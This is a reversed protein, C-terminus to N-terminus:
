GKTVKILKFETFVELGEKWDHKNYPTWEASRDRNINRLISRVNKFVRIEKTDIDKVIIM